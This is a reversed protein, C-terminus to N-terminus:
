LLFFHVTGSLFRRKLSITGGGVGERSEKLAGRNRHGQSRPGFGVGFDRFGVFFRPKLEQREPGVM